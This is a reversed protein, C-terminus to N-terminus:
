GLHNGRGILVADQFDPHGLGGGLCNGAANLDLAASSKPGACPDGQVRACQQRCDLCKSGGRSFNWHRDGVEFLAARVRKREETVTRRDSRSIAHDLHAEEGHRRREGGGTMRVVHGSSAIGAPPGPTRNLDAPGAV